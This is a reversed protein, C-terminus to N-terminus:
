EYSGEFLGAIDTCKDCSIVSILIKRFSSDGYYTKMGWGFEQGQPIFHFTDFYQAALHYLMLDTLPVPKLCIQCESFTEKRHKQIAENDRDSDYDYFGYGSGYDYEEPLQAFQPNMEALRRKHESSRLWRDRVSIEVCVFAFV